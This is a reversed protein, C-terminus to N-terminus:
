EANAATMINNDAQRKQELLAGITRPLGHASTLSKLQAQSAKDLRCLSPHSIPLIFAQHNPNPHWVSLFWDDLVRGRWGLLEFECSTIDTGTIRQCSEDM